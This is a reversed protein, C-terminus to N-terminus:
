IISIILIPLVIISGKIVGLIPLYGCCCCIWIPNEPPTIM